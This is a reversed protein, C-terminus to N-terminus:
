RPRGRHRAQEELEVHDWSTCVLHECIADADSLSRHASLSNMIRRRIHIDVGSGYMPWHTLAEENRLNALKEWNRASLSVHWDGAVESYLFEYGLYEFHGHHGAARRHLHLPGLSPQGFYQAIAQDVWEAIAPTRSLAVIDDGYLLICGDTPDPQPIDQLLYALAVNSCPSGQLLGEPGSAGEADMIDRNFSTDAFHRRERETDHRFSLNELKLTNEYIRRPLPLTILAGPNISNFCDRVDFVRYHMFGAQLQALLKTVLANRGTGDARNGSRKVNYIFCPVDMQARIADANMLHAAKMHSSLDCVYRFGGDAKPQRWWDIVHDIAQLPHFCSVEAKWDRVNPFRMGADYLYAARNAESSYFTHLTRRLKKRDGSRYARKLACWNKDRAARVEDRYEFVFEPPNIVRYPTELAPM